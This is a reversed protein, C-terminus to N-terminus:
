SWYSIRGIRDQRMATAAGMEFIRPFATMDRRATFPGFWDNPGNTAFARNLGPCVSEGARERERERRKFAAVGRANLRQGGCGGPHGIRFVVMVHLLFIYRLAKAVPSPRLASLRSHNGGTTCSPKSGKPTHDIATKQLAKSIRCKSFGRAPITILLDPGFRAKSSQARLSKSTKGIRIQEIM